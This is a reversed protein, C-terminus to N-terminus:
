SMKSPEKIYIYGGPVILANQHKEEYKSEQVSTQLDCRGIPVTYINQSDDDRTIKTM